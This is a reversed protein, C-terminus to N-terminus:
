SEPTVLRLQPGESHTALVSMGHMLVTTLSEAAARELRLTVPGASIHILGCTCRDVQMNHGRALPTRRCPKSDSM